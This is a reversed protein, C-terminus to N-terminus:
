ADAPPDVMITGRDLDIKPVAIDTFPLMTTSGDALKVELVDGAGFNHIAILEGLGDGATTVVALGILDSHYFSDDGPDPLLKRAVYLKINRLAEAPTATLSAACGPM